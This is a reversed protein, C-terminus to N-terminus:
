YRACCALSLSGHSSRFMLLFDYTTWRKDHDDTDDLRRLAGFHGDGPAHRKAAVGPSVAEETLGVYSRFPVHCMSVVVIDVLCASALM